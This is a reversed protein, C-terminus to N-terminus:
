LRVRRLKAPPREFASEEGGPPMKLLYEKFTVARGGVEPLVAARLIQRHEEELSVGRQAARRRLKAVVSDEIRRVVLQAV